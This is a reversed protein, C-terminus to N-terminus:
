PSAMGRGGQPVGGQRQAAGTRFQAAIPRRERVLQQAVRGTAVSRPAARPPDPANARKVVAAPRFMAVSTASVRAVRPDAASALQLQRVPQGTVQQVQQVPVSGNFVRGGVFSYNTINTTNRFIEVNRYPPVIFSGGNVALFSRAPVFSYWSADIANLGFGGFGVGASWGVAPPLPAWGYYGYGSQWSVWAPGWDTGRM